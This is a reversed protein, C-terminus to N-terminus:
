DKFDMVAGFAKKPQLAPDFLLPHDKRGRVPFNDLWTFRDSINWFTVSGISTRYKRFAAFVRQYMEKQMAEREPTYATLSDSPIRDRRGEKKYVSVDLETIHIKLGTKSFDSLTQELADASPSFISWHAQLGIGHIPVGKARLENVLKIIKGRKIPDIENYDNYFLLAAPDAAHAWEFAKQIFEEGCIQYFPSSRYFEDKQDSIAENVVDWAFVRGKYRGVVSDIHAKIRGLLVEKTPLQGAEGKFLWDPTQSHWVLTHGRVAMNRSTAFAVVSDAPAWNFYDPRPHIPGMKMANEATVGSFQTEILQREQTRLARPSIAVGMTFFSAYRDKLTGSAPVQAKLGDALLCLVITTLLIRKM